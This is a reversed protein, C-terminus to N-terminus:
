SRPAPDAALYGARRLYDLVQDAAQEPTRTDSDIRVEADSPTEYPDSIGTFAKILGVRAKAYLGKRDRAECVDLPASMHVLMFGGVASIMARVERRVSDYPAIPSCIAVGGCRTIESAVFGIRRINLDRHEKSFGLESSLHKRVLDGDLLTVSRDDSEMLRSRVINAVTSKGSGSLGTFFITFGKSRRPKFARALETAVAPSAFWEPLPQGAEMRSLFEDRTLCLASAGSPAEKRGVYVGRDKLYVAEQLSTARVELEIEARRLMEGDAASHTAADVLLESCGANRAVVMRQLVERPGGCRSHSQLLSLLSRKPPADRFLAELCRIRSSTSPTSTEGTAVMAQTLLATDRDTCHRLALERLPLHFLDPTQLSAARPWGRSEIAERLTKPTSRLHLFDYHIRSQVGEIPGGVYWSDHSPGWFSPSGAGIRRRERDLDPKWIEEVRQVALLLGEPDRLAVLMGPKLTGAIKESVDLVQPLPCWTGDELRGGDLVAEYDGRSLYSRLPSLSGDLLLQLDDLQSPSLDISPWDRSDAM